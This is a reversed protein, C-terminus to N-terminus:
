DYDKSNNVLWNVFISIIFFVTAGIIARFARAEHADAGIKLWTQPAFLMKDYSFATLWIMTALSGIIAAIFRYSYYPKIDAHPVIFEKRAGLLLVFVMILSIAIEWAIGKVLCLIAGIFILILAQNLVSKSERWLFNASLMLAIGTIASLFHAVEIIIPDLIAEIRIMRASPNPLASAGILLYGCVFVLLALIQPAVDIAVLGVKKAARAAPRAVPEAHHLGLIITAGVLPIINYILRYVLLAVAAGPINQSNPALKLIAAEFVGLGGPAGSLAGLLGALIFVALFAPFNWGGHAPLLMYLCLAAGIKDFLLIVLHKIAIQTNPKYLKASGWKIFAGGYDCFYLWLAAPIIAIIALIWWFGTNFPSHRAIEPAGLILGIAAASLAGIQVGVGTSMSLAGIEANNLGWKSYLRSRATSAIAWSYGLTKALSYSAISARITRWIIMQKGLMSLCFRDSLSLAGYSIIAGLIALLTNSIRVGDFAIAIDSLAFQNLEKNILRLALLFIILSSFTTIKPNSTLFNVIARGRDFLDGILKFILNPKKEQM